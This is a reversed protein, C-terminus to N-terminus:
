EEFTIMQVTATDNAYDIEGGAQVFRAGPQTKDTIIDAPLLGANQRLQQSLKMKPKDYQSIIRRLLMEEPRVYRHTVGEYLHNEIYQGALMVKSFCTGDNNYSSIKAEIEDMENIFDANVENTYIRDGGEDATVSGNDMIDYTLKLKQLSINRSAGIISFEVSGQLQELIPVAFCDVPGLAAIQEPTAKQKAEGNEDLEVSFHCKDAQWSTGNWYKTGIHLICYMNVTEGKRANWGATWDTDQKAEIKVWGNPYTAEPTANAFSLLPKEEMRVAFGVMQWSDNYAFQGLGVSLILLHNQWDWESSELKDDPFVLQIDETINGTNAVREGHGESVYKIAATRMFFAGYIVANPGTPYAYLYGDNPGIPHQYTTAVDALAIDEVKEYLTEGIHELPNIRTIREGDVTYQTPKFQRIKWKIGDLMKTACRRRWYHTDRDTSWKAEPNNDVSYTIDTEWSKIVPLAAMDDNPLVAASNGSQAASYNSVKITAKNYGGLLDLTHQSGHYGIAQVSKYAPKVANAEVLPLVNSISYADYADKYDFDALWIDGRWDCLTVHAFRCIEELVELWNMPKNEEDFFNQESIQCDDRLLANEGYHSNDIAFTHPIYVCSYRGAALTLARGILSRLSVFGLKGDAAAAKYSIQELVSVASQVEIDLPQTGGSYDQTYEEPRVFGCWAVSETEGDIHVLTVRYQQWGTAFLSQLESGGVVQVTGTSLRLPSYIFADDAISVTLPCPAGTLQVSTGSYGSEEIEVRYRNGRLSAFPITYKLGYTM